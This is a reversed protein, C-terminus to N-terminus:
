LQSRSALWLTHERSIADEADNVELAWESEDNVALLMAEARALDSVAASYARANFDHQKTEVWAVIAGVLAALAPTLTPVNPSLAEVLALGFGAFELSVLVVRWQNSRRRNYKAKRAYWERQNRLRQDLYIQQRESWPAERQGSMWATVMQANVPTLQLHQYENRVRDLRDLLEKVAEKKPLKSPFPDAGIAFKWALTKASEAVARADYWTKDPRARWLTGEVLLAGVFLVVGALALVDVDGDGVRWSFVGAIAAISVFSLRARTGRVYQRQGDLSASDAALFLQPMDADTVRATQDVSADQGVDRGFDALKGM